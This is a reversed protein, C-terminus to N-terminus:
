EARSRKTALATKMRDEIRAALYADLFEVEDFLECAVLEFWLGRGEGGQLRSPFDKRPWVVNRSTTVWVRTKPKLHAVFKLKPGPKGGYFPTIDTVAVCGDDTLKLFAHGKETRVEYSGRPKGAGDTVDVRSVGGLIEVIQANEPPVEVREQGDVSVWLPEAGLNLLYLDNPGWLFDRYGFWGAGSVEGIAGVGLLLAAVGLAIVLRRKWVGRPKELTVPADDTM